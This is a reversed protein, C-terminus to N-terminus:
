PLKEESYYPVILTDGPHIKLSTMDEQYTLNNISCVERLYDKMDPYHVADAYQAAYDMFDEGYAVTIDTYYKYDEAAEVAAAHSYLGASFLSCCLLIGLVALRIVASRPFLVTQVAATRSVRGAAATYASVTRRVTRRAADAQAAATNALNRRAAATDIVTYRRRRAAPASHAAATAAGATRNINIVQISHAYM